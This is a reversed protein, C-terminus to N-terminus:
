EKEYMKEKYFTESEEAKLLSLQMNYPMHRRNADKLGQNEKTLQELKQLLEEVEPEENIEEQVPHFQHRQM